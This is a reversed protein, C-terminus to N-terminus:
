DILYAPMPERGHNAIVWAWYRVRGECLQYGDAGKRVKVPRVSGLEFLEAALDSASPTFGYRNALAGELTQVSGDDAFVTIRDCPIQLLEETFRSELLAIEPPSLEFDLAAANERVHTLNATYPIALTGKVRVLWNLALQSSTKGHRQSLEVLEPDREWRAAVKGRDLPSYAILEIGNEACCPLAGQEVGRSNLNYELQVSTIPLEGAVEVARKLEFLSVNCLGVMRVKGQQVLRRLGEITDELPVAPNPWHMQYLDLYDTGLRRLSKEAARIVGATDSHQPSFKSALFVHPRLGAIVEGVMEESAGKGYEEASDIFAMGLEIGTRLSERQASGYCAFQAQNGGIGTGQGIRFIGALATEPKRGM